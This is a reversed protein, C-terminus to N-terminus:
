LYGRDFKMGEVVELSIGEREQRFDDRDGQICPTRNEDGM